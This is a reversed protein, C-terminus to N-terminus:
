APVRQEGTVASLRSWPHALDILATRVRLEDKGNDTLYLPYLQREVVYAAVANSWDVDDAIVIGDTQMRDHALSLERLMFAMSHDSDHIYLDFRQDLTPLVAHSDGEIFRWRSRLPAPVIFGPQLANPYLESDGVMPHRELPTEQSRIRSDPLDISTLIGYGNHELARLIFATNGGYYVGTELVHAPRRLRTVVYLLIREFAFWDVSEIREMRFIGKSFGFTARISGVQDNVDALFARDDLIDRYYGLLLDLDCRLYRALLRLNFTNCAHTEEIKM